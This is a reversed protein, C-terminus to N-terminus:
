SAYLYRKIKHTATKIFPEKRETFRHIKSYRSLLGNVDKQLRKLLDSVYREHDTVTKGKSDRDIVDQNFYIKAELQGNNEILLSEEVFEYSNIKDEIAEPFINEGSSLVIVSKSRGKIHLYGQDDIRGLDGTVLWGGPILTEATAEPDAMYGQMINEGRAHIDGVGTEQNPNHIRIEVGPIPKGTSGVPITADGLPGGALLPASETLGYGIIYPFDADRLFQETELNLAAGGIAMIQLNGGFFSLLKKGIKQMLAKRVPTLRCGLKLLTNNNITSLVRKKYIKEMVMPVVCMVAPKEVKCIKALYTPTPPKASYIIRCGKSLPVLFGVTFEYTHSMPLISLFALGSTVQKLLIAVATLNACFNGHSLMVAKSHGSTGSTYIISAIDDPDARHGLKKINDVDKTSLPSSDELLPTFPAVDYPSAPEESNDLTIILKLKGKDLEFTKEIHRGTTFIIKCKSENLIHRVDANPFDPLIPLAIAGIRIIAFYAVGWNPSNEALICIKDGERIGKGRLIHALMLVKEHMQSYTMPQDLAFGSFPYEQYRSCSADLVANLTTHNM